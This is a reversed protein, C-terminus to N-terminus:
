ASSLRCQATGDFCGDAPDLFVKARLLELSFFLEREFSTPMPRGSNSLSSACAISERGTVAGPRLRAVRWTAIPM